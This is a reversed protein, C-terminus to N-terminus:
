WSKINDKNVGVGDGVPSGTNAYSSDQGDPGKSWILAGEHVTAIPPPVFPNRNTDSYSTDFLVQYATKWPDVYNTLNNVPDIALDATKMELFRIHRPNGNYTIIGETASKDEGRLLAVMWNTTTMIGSPDTTTAPWKGYETYYAKYATALGSVGQQAKAAEAKGLASKIAPFLLAVLVGIIAIVTLLEILTFARKTKVYYRM